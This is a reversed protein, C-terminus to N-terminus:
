RSHLLATWRSIGLSSGTNALTKCGSAKRLESKDHATRGRETETYKNVTQHWMRRPHSPNSEQTSSNISIFVARRAKAVAANHSAGARPKTLTEGLGM